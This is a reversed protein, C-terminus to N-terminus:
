SEQQLERKQLQHLRQGATRQVIELGETDLDKLLLLVANLINNRKKRGGEGDTPSSFSSFKDRTLLKMGLQERIKNTEEMSFNLLDNESERTSCNQDTSSEVLTNDSNSIKTQPDTLEEGDTLAQTLEEETVVQNDLKQLNPLNRLVTMRYKQPDAGCCPNESLWLIKLRPLPKLYNLENLSSINNKRLYLETLNHCYSIPELTSINNVSLTIVEINPLEHCVSIDTLRSGWCNLKRVNELDSAKARSLVQKHTLKM